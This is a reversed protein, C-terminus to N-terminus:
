KRLLSTARPLWSEDIWNDGIPGVIEAHINVFRFENHMSWRAEVNSTHIIIPCNPRAEALFRAVDLGTGPDRSVGAVPNLDHDLSILQCTELFPRCEAIMLPAERWIHVELNKALKQVAFLFKAIRQEEDELILISPNPIM